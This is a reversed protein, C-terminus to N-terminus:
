KDDGRPKTSATRPPKVVVYLLLLELPALCAWYLWAGEAFFLSWVIVATMPMIVFVVVAAALWGPLRRRGPVRSSTAVFDDYAMLM